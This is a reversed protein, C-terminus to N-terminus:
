EGGKKAAAKILDSIGAKKADQKEFLATLKNSFSRISTVMVDSRDSKAEPHEAAAAVIVAYGTSMAECIALLTIFRAEQDADEPIGNVIEEQMARIRQTIEKELAMGADVKAVLEEGGQKRAAERIHM